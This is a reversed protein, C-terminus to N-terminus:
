APANLPFKLHLEYTEPTQQEELLFRDQYLRKLRQRTNSIGTGNGKPRQTTPKSNSMKLVLQDEKVRLHIQLFFNPSDHVGHVFANEVFPIILLPPLQYAPPTDPLDISIAAQQAPTLRALQLHLYRRLFDVEENLSVTAQKAHKFSFRLLGSLEAILTALQDQDQQLAESYITNLTNFLFHPHLQARLNRLEAETKGQELEARKRRIEPQDVALTLVAILLMCLLSVFWNEIIVETAYANLYQFLEFLMWWLVLLWSFYAWHPQSQQNILRRFFLRHNLWATGLLLILLFVYGLLWRIFGSLDGDGDTTYPALGQQWWYSWYALLLLSVIGFILLPVARFYFAIRNKMISLYT